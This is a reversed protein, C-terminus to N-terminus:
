VCVLAPGEGEDQGVGLVIMIVILSRLDVKAAMGSTVLFEALCLDTFLEFGSNDMVIDVTAGKGRDVLCQWAEDKNDTLINGHLQELASVPDGSAM